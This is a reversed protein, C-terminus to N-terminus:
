RNDILNRRGCLLEELDAPSPVEKLTDPYGNAVLDQYIKESCIKGGANPTSKGLLHYFPRLAFLCYDKWGYTNEDSRLKANLYDISVSVPSNILIVNEPSYQPWDRVREILNMDWMLDLEDNVWAVHYCYSGTFFKTLKGSLKSKSYIFAIKM